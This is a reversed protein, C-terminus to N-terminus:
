KGVTVPGMFAVNLPQMKYTCFAVIGNEHVIDIESINKTYSSHGDLFL